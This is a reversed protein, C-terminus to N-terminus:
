CGDNPSILSVGEIREQREDRGPLGKRVMKENKMGNGDRTRKRALSEETKKRKQREGEIERLGWATLSAAVTDPPSLLSTAPRPSPDLGDVWPSARRRWKEKLRM